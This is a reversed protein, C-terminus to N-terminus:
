GECEEEAALRLQARGKSTWGANPYKLAGRFARTWLGPLLGAGLVPDGRGASIPAAISDPSAVLPLTLVAAAEVERWWAPVYTFSHLPLTSGLIM